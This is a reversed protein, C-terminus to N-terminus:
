LLGGGPSMGTNNVRLSVYDGSTIQNLQLETRLLM